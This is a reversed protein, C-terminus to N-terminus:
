VHDNKQAQVDALGDQKGAMTKDIDVRQTHHAETWHFTMLGPRHKESQM